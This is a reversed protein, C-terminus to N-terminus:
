WFEGNDDFTLGLEKKQSESVKNWEASRYSFLCVGTDFVLPKTELTIAL